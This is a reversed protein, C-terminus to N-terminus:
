EEWTIETLAFGNLRKQEKEAAEKTEYPMSSTVCTENRYLFVWRSQKQPAFFLDDLQSNEITAFEGNLNFSNITECGNDLTVAAIIRVEGDYGKFDTCLIRVPEGRGTVVKRQPNELYKKLNFQEM